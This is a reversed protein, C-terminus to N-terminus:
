AVQGAGLADETFVIISEVLHVAILFLAVNNAEFLHCIVYLFVVEWDGHELIGAPWGHGQGKILRCVAGM